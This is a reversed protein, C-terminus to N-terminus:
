KDLRLDMKKQAIRVGKLHNMVPKPMDSPLDVLTYTDNLKINRIFQSELGVENAIAGVINGVKVGDAKGVAIRYTSFDYDDYAQHGSIRESSKRESREGRDNRDKRKGKNKSDRGSDRDGRPSRAFDRDGRDNRDRKKGSDGIASSIDPGKPVQLPQDEQALFLLGPALEEVSMEMEESLQKLCKSFYGINQHAFVQVVREKFRDMRRQEVDEPSPLKMPEIKQGISREILSLMRTERPTVFLIARGERGARGTRGIRHVYPEPDQPIDFNIVLTLRDVDLGRAAVDTAVVIDLKGEKLQRITKERLAQNMDGNLASASFGRAELKEAVEVTAAKTRAFIIVGDFDIAELIRTLADMKQSHNVRIYSQDILEVTTTKTEIKIEVPSKLYKSAIRRIVSPMTASFMAIQCKKPVGELIKEVDEIFGMRLMEDAEDLVFADLKEVNLTGRDIHDIVRGPTGVIVQAGRKLGKFQL